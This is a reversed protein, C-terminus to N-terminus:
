GRGATPPRRQYGSRAERRVPRREWLSAQGELFRHVSSEPMDLREAVSREVIEHHVVELGLRSAVGLAVDKGRSGMERTMAIVPM